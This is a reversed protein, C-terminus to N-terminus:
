ETIIVWGDTADVYALTMRSNPSDLQLDDAVGQILNGNRAVISDTLGSRNVVRVWDGSSPSAPLTLTLTSRVIYTTFLSATTNTTIVSITEPGLGGGGGGGGGSLDVWSGDYAYLKNATSDFYLPVLGTPLVPTGTPTGAAAPIGIFGAAMTTSGATPYINGDPDITVRTQNVGSADM